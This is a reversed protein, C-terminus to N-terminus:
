EGEVFRVMAKRTKEDPMPGIGAQMNDKLHEPNGTAPIVVTVAPHSLVYKLFFQSWTACGIDHAWSPLTKGRVRNFLDSTELPRNAIVAVGLDRASPLLRAEAHRTALSYYIQIFDPRAETMIREIMPFSSTSYHTVGIYRIRGQEKWAKLTTIHTEWDLLNHVQMLYIVGTRFLRFSNDMQRAGADRGGTWVKTAWFLSHTVGAESAIEGLIREASGYMPSCDVVRGGSQVFLRLVDALPTRGADSANIDFVTYTGLGVAPVLEGTSPITRKLQESPHQGM